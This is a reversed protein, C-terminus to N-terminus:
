ETVVESEINNGSIKFETFRPTQTNRAETVAGVLITELGDLEYSSSYHLHGATLEKVKNDTLMKLIQKAQATVRVNNEGMIHVSFANNLPMHMIAICKITKCEETENFLWATEVADMGKPNGNDALIFKFGAAKISQYDKGFIEEFYNRGKKNSEWWDHNGPVAYYKIKSKDLVSKIELLENLKGGNTLDGAAIVMQDGREKAIELLKELNNKDDHIDAMVAFKYEATEPAITAAAATPTPLAKAAEEPKGRKTLLWIAAATVIVGLIVLPLWKRMM